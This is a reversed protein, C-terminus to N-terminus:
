EITINYEGDYDPIISVGGAAESTLFRGRVTTLKSRMLPVEIPKSSSILHEDSDYIEVSVMVIAEEDNVFVYDFGLEAENDNLRHLSSEFFVGTYSDAPKDTFMNFSYPMFGHYRFVVRYDSLDVDASAMAADNMREANAKIVFDAVDNSVFNFKAMPRGMDVSAETVNESVESIVTGRFADRRDNSGEHVDGQLAIGEFQQTAYYLDGGDDDMVYDTWVMFNYTGPLLSLMLTTDLESIDPKVFEFRYLTEHAKVGDASADYAEVIYRVAYEEAADSRTDEEYEVVKYLPIDTDYNLTLTFQVEEPAPDPFEHVDCSSLCVGCLLGACMMILKLTKM